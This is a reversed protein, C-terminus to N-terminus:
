LILKPDINANQLSAITKTIPYTSKQLFNKIKIQNFFYWKGRSQEQSIIYISMM